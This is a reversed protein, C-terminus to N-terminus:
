ESTKANEYDTPTIWNGVHKPWLECPVLRKFDAITRQERSLDGSGSAGPLILVLDCALQYLKKIDVQQKEKIKDKTIGLSNVPVCAPCAGLATTCLTMMTAPKHPVLHECTNCDKDDRGPCRVLTILKEDFDGSGM